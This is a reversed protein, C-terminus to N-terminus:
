RGPGCEHGRRSDGDPEGQRVTAGEGAADRDTVHAGTVPWPATDACSRNAIYWRHRWEPVGALEDLCAHSREAYIRCITVFSFVWEWDPIRARKGHLHDNVTSPRLIRLDLRSRSLDELEKLTPRGAQLLFRRLEEAFWRAASDRRQNVDKPVSPGGYGIITAAV